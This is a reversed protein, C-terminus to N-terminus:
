SIHLINGLPIATVSECDIDDIGADRDDTEAIFLRGDNNGLYYGATSRMCPEYDNIYKTSYQAGFRVFIDEWRVSILDWKKLTKLRDKIVM